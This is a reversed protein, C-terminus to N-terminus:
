VYEYASKLIKNVLHNELKTQNYNPHFKSVIQLLIQQLKEQKRFARKRSSNPKSKGTWTFESLFVRHIVLNLATKLTKVASDDDVSKGLGMRTM